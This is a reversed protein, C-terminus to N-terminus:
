THRLADVPRMRAAKLAPYVGAVLATLLTVGNAALVDRASLEAKLVHTLALHQNASTFATLDIGYAALYSCAALAAGSGAAAALLALVLSEFLILLLIGGPPTGLSALTGLERFREFIITTMTNMIGMAVISFIILVLLRMTADNIDMIQKVEPAIEQWTATRYLAPDLKRYLAAALDSAERRHSLVVIESVAEGAGLFSRAAALPLYVHSRDFTMLATRYLGGVTFTRFVPRGASDQVALTVKDGLSVGLSRSLAEGILIGDASQLYDGQVIRESIITVAAEEEPAVGALLVGASRQGSLILASTKIRRSYSVGGTGKLALAVREPEPLVQLVPRSSEYGAAHVQLTGTDLRVTSDRMERHLGNKLAQFVILCFLGFSIACVTILSRRVNRRVNRFAIRAYLAAGSGATM